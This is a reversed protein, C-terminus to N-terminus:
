VTRRHLDLLTATTKQSDFHQEVWDRAQQLVQPVTASDIANVIQSVGRAPEDFNILWGTENDNIAERVGPASAAFVPLGHAMAEPIVNPLGDRDGDESVIGAFIFADASAYQEKVLEYSLGGLLEVSSDVRLRKCETRIATEEPGEGIIRLRWRFSNENAAKILALLRLYGKKPVLRGVAVFDLDRALDPRRPKFDPFKDLCRRVCHLKEAQEPFRKALELRATENSSQVFEAAAVKEGLLGDGGQQFIDYAHAGMSFRKGTLRHIFLAATTPMTAWATHMKKAPSKAIRKAKLLGYAAGLWMEAANLRSTPNRFLASWFEGVVAPKRAAWYLLWFPVGVLEWPSFRKVPHGDFDTEGGWLTRLEIRLGAALLGKVERQVFTESRKPFTTFLCM